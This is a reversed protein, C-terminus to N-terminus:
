VDNQEDRTNISPPHDASEDDISDPGSGGPRTGQEEATVSAQQEGDSDGGDALRELAREMEFRMDATIIDGLPEFKTFDQCYDDLGDCVNFKPNLFLKRLAARRLDDSVGPSLFGSVDSDESLSEIPPMDADTLPEAPEDEAAGQDLAEPAPPPATEGAKVNAEAKRRAWRNIFDEAGSETDVENAPKKPDATM